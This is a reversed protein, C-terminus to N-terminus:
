PIERALIKVDKQANRISTKRLIASIQLSQLKEDYFSFVLLRYPPSKRPRRMRAFAAFFVVDPSTFSGLGGMERARLLRRARFQVGLEFSAGLEVPSTLNLCATSTEPEARRKLNQLWTEFEFFCTEFGLKAHLPRTESKCSSNRIRTEFGGRGRPISGPPGSDQLGSPRLNTWAAM